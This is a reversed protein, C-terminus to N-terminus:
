RRTPNDTIRVILDDIDTPRFPLNGTSAVHAAIDRLKRNHDQSARVLVQFALQASLRYTTMLVGVATGITRNSDLAGRVQQARHEADDIATERLHHLEINARVRALLEQSSFPKIIYDDAGAAMGEAAADAGGRATLVLIPLRGTAGVARLEAVLQLGSRGPLMVDTLVLDIAPSGDDTVVASLATEAAARATVHFGDATLLRTLYARLDADDEVVMVRSGGAPQATGDVARDRHGTGNVGAVATARASVTPVEALDPRDSVPRTNRHTPGHPGAPAQVEQPVTVTFTSGVGPTSTLEIHGDHAHVLDAVLALGIGAGGLSTRTSRYFREFVRPQEEPPIGVGTDAVTLVVDCPGTGDDAPPVADTTERTRHLHVSVAGHPTFKFANALLNTVITSWMGTDVTAIIPEAPVTVDLRLGAHEAASRFMSATDATLRAIDVPQRHPILSGAEAQAFALLADVIRRLREAAREATELQGRYNPHVADPADLVDRLPALLLTLPTRLEHSVNQFFEMKVLDLDVLVQVRTRQAQYARSDTLAVGIQAVILALFSRYEEDLRRYPSIGLVLVGVPDGGRDLTLPVVMAEDPVLPGIPGPLIMGPQRARLGTLMQAQGTRMVNEIVAAEDQYGDVSMGLSWTNAALGYADVGRPRGEADERLLAVAFPVSQRTSSLVDHMARCTDAMTGAQTASVAGLNRVLRLRREALVKGTTETVITFVGGVNRDPGLIPSYSFTFYCEEPYGNRDLVLPLDDAAVPTADDIVRQMLPGIVELWQEAWVDRTPRGLAQPHKHSGMIPVFADNYLVALDPGWHLSMAFGSDLCVRVMLRLEAPWTRVPGMSTSAWDVSRCRRRMEGPGDFLSGDDVEPSSVVLV